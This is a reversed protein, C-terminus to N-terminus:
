SSGHTRGRAPPEAGHRACPSDCSATAARGLDDPKHELRHALDVSALLDTARTKAVKKSIGSLRLPVMVNELASLSSLLNFAQFIVGVKRLRYDNLADGELRTVDTDGLTITGLAPKLIAAMSSLLTTKGCGSAGLLLVLSGTSIELNLKEIPRVVYGGSSYEITLDAISLAEHSDTAVPSM